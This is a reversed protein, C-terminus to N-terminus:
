SRPSTVHTPNGIAQMTQLARTALQLNFRTDPDNLDHGSIERIRQLRYKLTSRHIAVASATAEYSGGLDLYRGLTEVLDYHHREDYDILDGLWTRVFNAIAGPERIEALLRFVGLDDFLAIGGPLGAVDFMRLALEAERYARPLETVHMSVSGVGIRYGTSADAQSLANHVAQWDRDADTLLVLRGGRPAVISGKGVLRQLGGLVQAARDPEEAHVASIVAVRHEADTDFSLATARAVIQASLRGALLEDVLDRGLRLEVEVVSQLRSMEMALVTAGHELVTTEHERAKGHPDLLALAGIVRGGGSVAAFLYDGSRVPRGENKGDALLATWDVEAQGTSPSPAGAVALVQGARDVVTVPYGTLEHVAEAIGAAGEGDMAVRTLRRHMATSRRLAAVTDGLADNAQRLEAARSRERTHLRTNTLAIGTQQAFVRLLFQQEASPEREASVVMFGVQGELSRLPYAWGWGRGLVAVAGGAEGLVSFQAETDAAADSVSGGNDMAQWGGPQLYVGELGGQVLSPVTSNALGVIRGEDDSESMLMSLVLLARMSTLLQSAAEDTGRESSPSVPLGGGGPPLGVSANVLRGWSLVNAM